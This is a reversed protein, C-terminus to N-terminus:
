AWTGSNETLFLGPGPGMGVEAEGRVALIIQNVSGWDPAWQQDM